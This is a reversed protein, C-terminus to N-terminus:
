LNDLVKLKMAQLDDLDTMGIAGLSLVMVDMYWLKCTKDFEKKVKEWEQADITGKLMILVSDNNESIHLEYIDQENWWDVYQKMLIGMKDHIIIPQLVFIYNLQYTKEVSLWLHLNVKVVPNNKKPFCLVHVKKETEEEIKELIYGGDDNSILENILKQKDVKTQLKSKLLNSFSRKSNQQSTATDQFVATRLKKLLQSFESLHYKTIIYEAKKFKERTISQRKKTLLYFNIQNLLSIVLERAEGSEEFYSEEMAFYNAIEEADVQFKGKQMGIILEGALNGAIAARIDHHNNIEPDHLAERLLEVAKETKGFDRYATALNMIEIFEDKHKNLKRFIRISLDHCHFTKEEERRRRYILAFNGALAGANEPEFFELLTIIKDYFTLIEDARTSVCNRRLYSFDTEFNEQAIASVSETFERYLSSTRMWNLLYILKEKPLYNILTRLEHLFCCAALYGGQKSIKLIDDVATSCTEGTLEDAKLNLWNKIICRDDTAFRESLAHIRDDNSNSLILKCLAHCASLEANEHDGCSIFAEMAQCCLDYGHVEAYETKLTALALLLEGSKKMSNESQAIILEERLQEELMPDDSQQMVTAFLEQGGPISSFFSEWKKKLADAEHRYQNLLMLDVCAKVTDALAEYNNHQYLIEIWRQYVGIAKTYLGNGKYLSILESYANMPLYNSKEALDLVQLFTSEAKKLNHNKAYYIALNTRVRISQIAFDKKPLKEIEACLTEAEQIAGLLDGSVYFANCLNMHCTVYEFQNELKKWLRMCILFNEKSQTFRQTRYCCMGTMNMASLYERIYGYDMALKQCYLLTEEAEPYRADLYLLEGRMLNAKLIEYDNMSAIATKCFRYATQLGNKIDRCVLEGETQLAYFACLEHAGLENGYQNLFARIEPLLKEFYRNEKLVCFHKYIKAFREPMEANLIRNPSIAVTGAIEAAKEACSFFDLDCILSTLTQAIGEIWHHKDQYHQFIRMLEGPLDMDTEILLHMWSSRVIPFEMKVLYYLIMPDGLLKLLREWNKASCVHYLAAKAYATNQIIGESTRSVREDMHSQFHKGLADHVAYFDVHFQRVVEILNRDWIKWTDASIIQFQEFIVRIRAWSIPDIDVFGRTLEFLTEERLAYSTLSVISLATKAAEAEQASLRELMSRLVYGYLEHVSTFKGFVEALQDLNEFNAYNNFYRIIFKQYGLFELLPCELLHYKQSETMKKGYISMYSDLFHSTEEKAFLPLEKQNWGQMKANEVISSDNVSCIIHIDPNTESPLWSMYSAGADTVLNLDNIIIYVKRILRIKKLWDVFGCRFSELEQDTVFYMAHSPKGESHVSEMIRFYISAYAKFEPFDVSQDIKQLETIIESAIAPWYQYAEDSGCNILIKECAKPQWATLATTKGRKGNGYIMLSRQSNCCYEDLFKHLEDVRIYNRLLENNYWKKRADHVSEMTPFVNNLWSTVAAIM